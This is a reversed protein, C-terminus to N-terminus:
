SIKDFVEKIHRDLEIDDFPKTIIAVPFVKEANSLTDHDSLATIFIVPVSYNENMIKVADIGNLKGKLSIDMLVLNPIKNTIEKLFEEGSSATGAIRYGLSELRMKLELQIIFEDEVIFIGKNV